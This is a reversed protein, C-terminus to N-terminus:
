ERRTISFSRYSTIKNKYKAFLDPQAAEFEKSNFSTKKIEPMSIKVRDSKLVKKEKAELKIRNKIYNAREQLSKIENQIEDYEIALEELESILEGEEDTATPFAEAIWDSDTKLGSIEPAEGEEVMRMFEKEGSIIQDIIYEDREVKFYKFTNGGILVAIYAYEYNLVAMYHQVQLMYHNPPADVWEKKMRENATKIELIGRKGNYAPDIVEGDINAVMFDYEDHQLVYPNEFVEFGTEAAFKERIIPELINGWEIYENEINPAEIEGTKELWLRFASKYPNLGFIIAVDSGGIGKQQQRYEQWDQSSMNRKDLIKKM